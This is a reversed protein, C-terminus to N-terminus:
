EEEKGRRSFPLQGGRIPKACPAHLTLYRDHDRRIRCNVHLELPNLLGYSKGKFTIEVRAPDHEHYLLTVQQGILQVPAEYLKTNLSITRDKAVRRRARKRFYDQLDKPATRVCQM